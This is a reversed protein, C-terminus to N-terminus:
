LNTLCVLQPRVMRQLSGPPPTTTAIAADRAGPRQAQPTLHHAFIRPWKILRSIACNEDRTFNEVVFLGNKEDCMIGTIFAPLKDTGAIAAQLVAPDNCQVFRNLKVRRNQLERVHGDPPMSKAIRGLVRPPAFCDTICVFGDLWDIFGVDGRRFLNLSSAV